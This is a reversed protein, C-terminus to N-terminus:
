KKREMMEKGVRFSGFDIRHEHAFSIRDRWMELHWSDVLAPSYLIIIDSLLLYDRPSGASCSRGSRGAIGRRPLAM